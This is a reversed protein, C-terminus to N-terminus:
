KFLCSVGKYVTIIKWDINILHHRKIIKDFVMGVVDTVNEEFSKGTNYDWDSGLKICLSKPGYLYFHFSMERYHHKGDLHIYDRICAVLPDIEKRTESFFRLEDPNLIKEDDDLIM